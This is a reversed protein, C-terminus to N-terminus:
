EDDVKPWRAERLARKSLVYAAAMLFVASLVLVSRAPGVTQLLIGAALPGLAPGVALLTITATITRGRRADDVQRFILLDVLVMAAPLPLVMLAMLVGYWWPGLPLVLGTTVLGIWACLVVLLWGPRLRHLPRVLAAGALGGVATIAFVLGVDTASGGHDRVLVIVVLELAAGGLNLLGIAMIAARLVPTRLLLVLGSMVGGHPQGPAAEANARDRPMALACLASIVYGAAVGGMALVRSAAFLFGGALPGSMAAVHTRVEEQTLATTLQSPAVVSRMALMRAGSSLPRLAGTIAAVVFLMPLTLADAALLAAVTGFAVARVLEASILLTRRNYRDLVAGAPIGALFTAAGDIFAYTGAAVPSGSIGLVLLPVAVSNINFSMETGAGGIWLAQFRRNRRLPVASPAAARHDTTPAVMM